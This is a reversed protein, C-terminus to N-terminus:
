GSIIPCCKKVIRWSDDENTLVFQNDMQIKEILDEDHEPILGWNQDFIHGDAL